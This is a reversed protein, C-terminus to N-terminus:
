NTTSNCGPIISSDIIMAAVWARPESLTVEMEEWNDQDPDYKHVTDLYDGWDSAGGIMFFTRGYQVTSADFIPGFPLPNGSISIMFYYTCM